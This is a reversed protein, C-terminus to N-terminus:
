LDLDPTQSNAARRVKLITISSILSVNLKTKITKSLDIRLLTTNRDIKIAIVPVSINDSLAKANLQMGGSKIFVRLAVLDLSFVYRM